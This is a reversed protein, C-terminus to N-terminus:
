SMTLCVQSKILAVDTTRSVIVILTTLIVAVYVLFKSDKAVELNKEPQSLHDNQNGRSVNM